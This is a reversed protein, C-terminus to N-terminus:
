NVNSGSSCGCKRGNSRDHKYKKSDSCNSYDNGNKQLWRIRIASPIYDSSGVFTVIRLISAAGFFASQLSDYDDTCNKNQNQCNREKYYLMEKSSLLFPFIAQITNTRAM